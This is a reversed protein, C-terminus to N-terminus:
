AAPVLDRYRAFAQPQRLAVDATLMGRVSINGKPYATAEYPNVLVEFASWYGILLQSWQGAIWQGLGTGTGKTLNSPVLPSFTSPRELFFRKAGYIDSGVNQGYTEISTFLNSSCLFAAGDEANADVLKQLTQAAFFPLPGDGNPQPGTLTTLGPTALVGLPQNPGGGSIAATDIALALQQAFDSRIMGEIAVSSQQLMNRSFETLCGVHRPTMNVQEFTLDSATIPSNEAVWGATASAKLRPISVYGSLGNLITAGLRGTVLATRLRDIFQNGLVDTQILAGGPGGVPGTTTLVRQHFVETPILVGEAQRGARRALEPQLERERGWDVGPMGAAGAIARTISFRGLEADLRNDNAAVARGGARRELDDIKRHNELRTDLGAIEAQLRDFAAQDDRSHAAQLEVFLTSRRELLDHNM